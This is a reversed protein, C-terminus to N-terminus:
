SVPLSFRFTSGQGPESEVWIQGGYSEAIRKCLALGIGTGEYRQGGHLRKFLGFIYDRHDPHIGIGNDAVAFTWGKDHCPEASIHIVPPVGPRVYKLANGILNQFLQSLHVRHVNITPLPGVTISAGTKNLIPQLTEIVETVIGACAVPVIATETQQLRCYTLLDQLLAQMRAGGREIYDVIEKVHPNDAHGTERILLQSFATMMRVPEQLDHSVAYAFQTLDANSRRLEDDM